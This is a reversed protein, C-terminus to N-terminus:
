SKLESVILDALEEDSLDGALTDGGDGDDLMVILDGTLRDRAARALEAKAELLEAEAELKRREADTKSGYEARWRKELVFASGRWNKAEPDTAMGVLRREGEARARSFAALFERYAGHTSNRGRRLWNNLSSVSVGALAATASM